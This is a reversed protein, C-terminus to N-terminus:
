TSVLVGVLSVFVLCLTLILFHSLDLAMTVHLINIQGPPVQYNGKLTIGINIQVPLGKHTVYIM